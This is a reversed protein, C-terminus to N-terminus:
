GATGDKRHHLMITNGSPDKITAMNCGPFDHFQKSVKVGKAKLEEATKKVNDVSIGIVANGQPKKFKEGMMEASGIALTVNGLDFEAYGEGFLESPKLGLTDRYFEVSKKFDLVYYCIFDVARAKM